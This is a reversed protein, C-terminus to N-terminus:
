DRTLGFMINLSLKMMKREVNSLRRDIRLREDDLKECSATCILVTGNKEEGSEVYFVYNKETVELYLINLVEVQEINNEEDIITMIKSM